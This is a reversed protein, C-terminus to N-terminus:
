MQFEMFMTTRDELEKELESIQTGIQEILEVLDTDPEITPKLLDTIQQARNLLSKDSSLMKHHFEEGLDEVVYFPSAGYPKMQMNDQLAELQQRYNQVKKQLKNKGCSVLFVDFSTIQGLFERVVELMLYQISEDSQRRDDPLLYGSFGPIQEGIQQIMEQLAPSIEENRM